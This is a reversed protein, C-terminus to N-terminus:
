DERHVKAKKAGGMPERMMVTEQAIHGRCWPCLPRVANPDLTVVEACKPCRFRVPNRTRVV